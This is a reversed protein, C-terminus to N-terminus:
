TLKLKHQNIANDSPSSGGCTQALQFRASVARWTNFTLGVSKICNALLNGPHVKMPRFIARCRVTRFHPLVPKPAM